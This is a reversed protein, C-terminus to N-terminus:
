GRPPPTPQKTEVSGQTPAYKGLTTSHGKDDRSRLLAQIADLLHKHPSHPRSAPNAILAQLIQLATLSDTAINLDPDSVFALLAQHIAVLESCLVTNNEEIGTADILIATSTSPHIVAAGLKPNPDIKSGNTYVLTPSIDTQAQYILKLM